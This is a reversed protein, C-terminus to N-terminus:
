YFKGFNNINEVAQLKSQNRCYFLLSVLMSLVKIYGWSLASMVATVVTVRTMAVVKRQCRKFAAESLTPLMARMNAIGLM